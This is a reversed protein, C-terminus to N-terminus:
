KSEAEAAHAECLRAAGVIKLWPLPCLDCRKTAPVEPELAAPKSAKREPKAESKQRKKM